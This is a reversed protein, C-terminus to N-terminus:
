KAPKFKFVKNRKRKELLDSLPKLMIKIEDEISIQNVNKFSGLAQAAVSGIAEQARVIVENSDIRLKQDVEYVFTISSIQKIINDYLNREFDDERINMIHNNNAALIQCVINKLSLEVEFGGRYSKKMREIIQHVRQFEQQDNQKILQQNVYIIKVFVDKAVFIPNLIIKKDDMYKNLLTYNM